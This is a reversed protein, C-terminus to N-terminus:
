AQGSDCSKKHNSSAGQRNDPYVGVTEKVGDMDDICWSEKEDKEEVDGIDADVDKFGKGYIYEERELAIEERLAM